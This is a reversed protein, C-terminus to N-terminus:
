GSAALLAEVDRTTPSDIVGPFRSCVLGAVAAAYRLAGRDGMNGLIGFILGARFSDGAGATDRTAVEFTDLEQRKGDRRGFLIPDAGQTLVVLGDARGRYEEFLEGVDADPYERARFEGSVIIAAARTALESDFPSDISVFPVGAALALEAVRLSEAGFPPDVCVIRAAAVDEAQPENWQRGSSLLAVYNGLITRTKTDSIVVERAGAGDKGFALREANIGFGEIRERLQQGEDNGGLWNGDLRVSLGLRSMVIASNLAEGGTMRYSRSMEAYGDPAPFPHELLHLTSSAIVGYAYVDFQTSM